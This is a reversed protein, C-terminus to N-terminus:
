AARRAAEQSYGQLISEWGEDMGTEMAALRALGDAGFRELHRHEFDVITSDGDPRFRVEVETVLDPDYTFDANLQWALLVREPAQWELVKGWQYESGDEGIEYWRGGVRPEILVDRQPTKLVSHGKPWWSGMAGLFTEFARQQPSRVRFSKRIPAAVITRPENM